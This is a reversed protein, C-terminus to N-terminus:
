SSVASKETGGRCKNVIHSTMNNLRGSGEHWFLVAALWRQTTKVILPLMCLTLQYVTIKEGNVTGWFLAHIERGNKTNIALLVPNGGNWTHIAICGM